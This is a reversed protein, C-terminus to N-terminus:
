VNMKCRFSGRSRQGEGSQPSGTRPFTHAAATTRNKHPSSYHPFAGQRSRWQPSTHSALLSSEEVQGRTCHTLAGAQEVCRIFCAPCHWERREAGPLSLMTAFSELFELTLILCSAARSGVSLEQHGAASCLHHHLLAGAQKECWSNQLSFCASVAPPKEEGRHSPHSM